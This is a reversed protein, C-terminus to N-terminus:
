PTPAPAPAPPPATGPPAAPPPAPPAMTPPPMPAPPPATTKPPAPQVGGFQYTFAFGLQLFYGTSGGTDQSDDDYLVGIEPMVAWAQGPLSLRLGANIAGAINYDDFNDSFGLVAKGTLDLEFMDSLRQTFVVGPMSLWANDAGDGDSLLVGSQATLALVNPVLSLKPSVLLNFLNTDMENFWAFKGGLEFKDNIGYSGMVEVSESGGSGGDAHFEYSNVALGVQTAGAPLMPARQYSSFACGAPALLAVLAIIVARYVGRTRM